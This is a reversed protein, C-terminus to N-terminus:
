YYILFMIIFDLLIKIFKYDLILMHILVRKWKNYINKLKIIIFDLLIKIFKYDLISM